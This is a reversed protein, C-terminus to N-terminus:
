FTRLEPTPPKPEQANVLGWLGTANRGRYLRSRLIEKEIKTKLRVRKRTTGISLPSEFGVPVFGCRLSMDRFGRYALDHDDHGLFFQNTNLGGLLEYLDRRIMLPGRMVTQGLWITRIEQASADLRLDILPGLRGARGSSKFEARSPFFSQKVQRAPSDACPRDQAKAGTLFFACQIPFRLVEQITLRALAILLAYKNQYPNSAAVFERAQDLIPETGRGSIMLMDPYAVLAQLIKEDFGHEYIEMDIQVELLYPATAVDFGYADCKTEFLERANQYVRIRSLNPFRGYMQHAWEQIVFFGGDTSADDIVILEWKSAMSSALATLNKWIIKEQNFVPVVASIRPSARDENFKELVLASETMARV